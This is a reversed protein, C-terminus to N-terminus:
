PESPPPPVASDSRGQGAGALIARTVLESRSIDLLGALRDIDAREDETLYLTLQM